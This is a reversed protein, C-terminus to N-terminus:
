LLPNPGAAQVKTMSPLCVLIPLGGSLNIFCHLERNKLCVQSPAAAHPPPEQARRVAMYEPLRPFCASRLSIDPEDPATRLAAAHQGQSPHGPCSGTEGADCGRLQASGNANM